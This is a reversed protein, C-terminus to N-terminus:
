FLNEKQKQFEQFRKEEEKFCTELEPFTKEKDELGEMVVLEEDEFSAIKEQIFEIENKLAKFEENTKVSAQKVKAKAMHDAEAQVQQEFQLRRKKLDEIELLLKDVEVKIEGEIPLSAISRALMRKSADM